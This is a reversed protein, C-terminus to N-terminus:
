GAVFVHWSAYVALGQTILESLMSPIQKHLIHLPISALFVGGFLLTWALWDTGWGDLIM